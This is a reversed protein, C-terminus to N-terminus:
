VALWRRSCQAAKRAGSIPSGQAQCDRLQQSKEQWTCRSSNPRSSGRTATGASGDFRQTKSDISRCGSRAALRWARRAAQHRGAIARQHQHRMQAKGRMDADPELGLRAHDMAALLVANAAFTNQCQPLHAPFLKGKVLRNDAVLFRLESM